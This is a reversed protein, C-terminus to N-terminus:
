NVSQAVLFQKAGNERTYFVRPRQVQQEDPEEEMLEKGQQYHMRRIQPVRTNAYEFWEALFIKGDRNSDAAGKKIGEELLAYALYSHKLVEAEFAVEMSQSATLVYIGKEYALQALGRTNMPGRRIEKTEVAQGSNCADIVLLLQDADLPQLATELEQDSVSHKLITALGPADLRAPEGKYGIDHPILYFRDGDAM